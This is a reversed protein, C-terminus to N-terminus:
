IIEIEDEVFWNEELVNRRLLQTNSTYAVIALSQETRSCCVYFLRRVRDIGTDKGESENRRDNETAAAVGFLKDYKFLFGRTEEDDMIVMVRSFQLGKVGQHTAYPSLDSIYEKYPRIEGFSSQLASEWARISSSTVEETEEDQSESITENVTLANRYAIIALNQPLRFLKSEKVNEVIALLKPDDGNVWLSNLSDVAAEAKELLKRKETSNKINERTMLPSFRKVIRAIAFKDKNVYAERLPYIAETFFRLGGLSGDLLGARLRDDSYLSEFLRLFGMRRAAMHHELILKKVGSGTELWADDGTVVAMRRTIDAEIRVKDRSSRGVVFLRIHGQIQGAKPQQVRGDASRRILNILTVVRVPCRYNIKKEPQLWDKPLEEGLNAKGDVYIRQMMDGFMGIMFSKSLNKQVLFVADVLEKKTDQSEDIFLVPFKRTLIDQLLRKETIFSAGMSIVDPHSLSDHTNNDRTPSYVFRRIKDLQGMREMKHAIETRRNEMAQGKRGNRQQRELEEISALLSMKLWSRIDRQHPKILEWIFSHITSVAFLPDYDLRRRIEDCAANTFTIVAVKKRNIRLYEGHKERIFQLATVLARTKGSGAGAFLFFSQPKGLDLCGAIQDDIVRDPDLLISKENM